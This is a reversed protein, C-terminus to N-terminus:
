KNGYKCKLQSCRPTVYERTNWAWKFILAGIKCVPCLKDILMSEDEGVPRTVRKITLFSFEENKTSGKRM